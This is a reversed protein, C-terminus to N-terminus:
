LYISLRSVAVWAGFKTGERLMSRQGNTNLTMVM